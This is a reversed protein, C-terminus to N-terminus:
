NHSEVITFRAGKGLIKVAIAELAGRTATEGVGNIDRELEVGASMLASGAAASYKDYGYGGAYGVGRTYEGCGTNIWVASRVTSGRGCYIRMDVIRNALGDIVTYTKGVSMSDRRKGINPECGWAIKKVRNAMSHKFEGAKSWSSKRTNM